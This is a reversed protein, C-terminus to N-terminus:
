HGSELLDLALAIRAVIRAARIATFVTQTNGASSGGGTSSFNACLV